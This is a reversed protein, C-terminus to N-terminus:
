ECTDNSRMSFSMRGRRRDVELVKVKVQHGVAAIDSPDRVFRDALKSVHVLGDRHAGVDVFAGFATVNTVIGPLIMGEEVDAIDHIRDDFSFTEFRGRPDRGPKDLEALIDRITPLGM